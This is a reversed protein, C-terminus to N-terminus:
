EGTNMPQQRAIKEYNNNNCHSEDHRKANVDSYTGCLDGVDLVPASDHRRLNVTEKLSVHIDQVENGIVSLSRQREKEISGLASKLLRDERCNLGRASNSTFSLEKRKYRLVAVTEM